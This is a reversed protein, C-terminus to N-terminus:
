KMEGEPKRADKPINKAREGKLVRLAEAAFLIREDAMSASVGFLHDPCEHGVWERMTRDRLMIERRAQVAAALMDILAEEAKDEHLTAQQVTNLPVREAM